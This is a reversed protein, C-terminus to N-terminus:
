FFDTFAVDPINLETILEGFGNHELSLETVTGSGQNAAFLATEDTSLAIMRPDNGFCPFELMNTLRGDEEIDLRYLMDIGRVSAFLTKGDKTIQIEAAITSEEKPLTLSIEDIYTFTGDAYNFRMIKCGLETILYAQGNPHFKLHRPGEGAKIETKVASSEIIEGQAGTRYSFLANVGFDVAILREDPAFLVEHARAQTQRKHTSEGRHQINSLEAGLSGDQNVAFAIINGAAYDAGYVATGQPNLCVHCCGGGTGSASNILETGGTTLIRHASIVARSDDENAAYIIKKSPHLALFSPNVCASDM